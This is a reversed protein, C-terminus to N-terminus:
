VPQGGACCDTSTAALDVKAAVLSTKVLVNSKASDVRISLRKTMMDLVESRYLGVCTLICSGQGIYGWLLLNGDSSIM